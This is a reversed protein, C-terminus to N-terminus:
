PRAKLLLLSAILNPCSLMLRDVLREKTPIFLAAKQFEQRIYNINARRFAKFEQTQFLDMYWFHTSILFSFIDPLLWPRDEPDAGEKVFRYLHKYIEVMDYLHQISSTNMFSGGWQCYVYLPENLIYISPSYYQLVRCFYEDEHRLGEPFFVWPNEMMSKRFIFQVPCVSVPKLKLYAKGSQEPMTTLAYPKVWEKGNPEERMKVPAFITDIEPLDKILALITAISGPLIYDDSDIFWIYKGSAQLVGKKRAVSVGRNEQSLISFRPDKAAYAEAIKGTEDTSGDNVVIVEFDDANQTAISDLCRRLFKKANYAPIVITLSPIM